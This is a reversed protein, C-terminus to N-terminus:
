AGARMDGLMAQLAQAALPGGICQRLFSQSLLGEAAKQDIGRSTLYFLAERSLAGVTAGHSCSVDDTYIELEPKTNITADDGMGLNKNSLQADTGSAGEHIHIRGNFTCKGGNAVINHITQKSRGRPQRHEITIQQDLATKGEVMGASLITAEAGQGDMVVHIDQRRSGCGLAHNNLRYSASSQLRVNLYHWNAPAYNVANRSHSVQANAAIDIWVTQQSSDDGEVVEILTLSANAAVRVIVPLTSSQHVIMVPQTTPQTIELTLAEGAYCLRAIAEPAQQLDMGPLPTAIPALHSRVGPQDLGSIQPKSTNVATQELFADAKTYKWRERHAPSNLADALSQDFAGSPAGLGISFEEPVALTTPLALNAM